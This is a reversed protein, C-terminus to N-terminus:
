LPTHGEHDVAGHHQTPVGRMLLWKLMPANGERVAYAVATANTPGVYAGLDSRDFRIPPVQLM